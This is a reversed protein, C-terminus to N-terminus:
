ESRSTRRAQLAWSQDITWPACIPIPSKKNANQNPSFSGFGTGFLFDFFVIHRAVASDSALRGGHAKSIDVPTLYVHQDIKDDKPKGAARVLPPCLEFFLFRIVIRFRLIHGGFGM